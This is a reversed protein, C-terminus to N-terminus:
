RRGPDVLRGDLVIAVVADLASLDERPDRLYAVLDAPAGEEIGPFGLFARAAWSGAALAAEAPLGASALLEIERRVEGNPIAVDTGAMLTVGAEWAARVTSRLTDHMGAARSRAVESAGVAQPSLVAGMTPTLATGAGAIAAISDASAFTGHEISDCGAAVAMEVTERQIAHIAVRGGAVHVRGVADALTEARFSPQFRDEFRWDGVVKAWGGGGARLEEVAAEALEDDDVERAWGPIYRGRGALWRGATVIRPLGEGELTATVHSVAGPERVLLVGGEVQVRAQSLV